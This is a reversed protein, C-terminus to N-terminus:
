RAPDGGGILIWQENDTAKYLQGVGLGIGQGKDIYCQACMNAWSGDETMGDVFFGRSSLPAKCLDCAVPPDVHQQVGSMVGIEHLYTCVFALEIHFRTRFSKLARPHRSLLVATQLEHIFSQFDFEFHPKLIHDKKEFPEQETM